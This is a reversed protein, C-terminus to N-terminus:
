AAKTIREYEEPSRYGLTSHIRTRNYFAEIWEFISGRAEDRTTYESFFVHEQKLTGFFSEVVSNDWCNGKRSMSCVIGHMQLLSQYDGSAYQSGRDSHALLGSAPQRQWIAMKLAKIALDRSLTPEMAWGVVKRSYLDLIVSLYLWGERTWIYTIDGAWSKNPSKPTFDRSLVNSAVPLHHKSNTTAKFKRKTKARIGYLRMLRAVKPKSCSEGMGTLVAHIRPSGYTNRSGMHVKEILSIVRFEDTKRRSVPRTRWAHYGSESVELAKAMIRLPYEKRHEDIASFRM